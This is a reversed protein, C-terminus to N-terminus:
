HPILLKLLYAFSIVTITSIVYLGIFWLWQKKKNM